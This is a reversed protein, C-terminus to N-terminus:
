AIDMSIVQLQNLQTKLLQCIAEMQKGKGREEYLFNHANQMRNIRSM